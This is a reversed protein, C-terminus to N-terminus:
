QVICYLMCTFFNNIPLIKNINLKFFPNNNGSFCICQKIFGLFLFGLKHCSHLFQRREQLEDLRTQSDTGTCYMTKFNLISERSTLMFIYLDNPEVTGQYIHALYLFEKLGEATNLGALDIRLNLHIQWPLELNGNPHHQRHQMWESNFAWDAAVSVGEMLEFSPFSQFGYESCFRPKPYVHWDWTNAAYNYNHIDGYLTSGPNLSLYSDQESQIGNSPSSVVFSRSRDLSTVIPRITDVYLRIYDDKYVSFNADTGYWNQRLAAENENNGAWVAISAHRQLRRVQHRVEAAVNALSAEDAPYMSCAFMFDQWILIGQEDAIRYFDDLEYIGGGWVRLMNMHAEQASYLLDELYDATVKEPLVHAPIWNSGKMFIPRSNVRFYFSRGVALSEQVLEITRFAFSRRYTTTDALRIIGGTKKNVLSVTLAIDYLVQSGHGNPWWLEVQSKPVTFDVSWEIERENNVELMDTISQPGVMATKIEYDLQLYLADLATAQLIVTLRVAFEDAAEGDAVEWLVHKFRVDDFAVLYAPQWLGVSPAAPGWDWSFSAQMKRIHNAHCVGRFEDAVCAPPVAHRERNQSEFAKAAYDVPSQFEVQLINEGEVLHEKVPLIYRVFMNQTTALLRGNLTLTAVTDVGHLDLEVSTSALLSAEVPFSATYTWNM